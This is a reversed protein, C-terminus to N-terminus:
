EEKMAEARAARRFRRNYSRKAKRCVGPRHTYCYIRRAGALIDREDGGRLPIHKM